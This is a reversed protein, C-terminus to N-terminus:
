FHSGLNLKMENQICPESYTVTQAREGSHNRTVGVLCSLWSPELFTVLPFTGSEQPSSIVPM